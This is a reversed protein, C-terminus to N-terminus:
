AEGEGGDGNGDLQKRDLSKESRTERAGNEGEMETYGLVLALRGDISQVPRHIPGPDSWPLEDESLSSSSSSGLFSSPSHAGGNSGPRGDSEGQRHHTHQRRQSKKGALHV